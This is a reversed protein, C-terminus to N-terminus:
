FEAAHGQTLLSDTTRAAILLKGVNVKSADPLSHTKIPFCTSICRVSIIGRKRRTVQFVPIILETKIAWLSIVNACEFHLLLVFLETLVTFTQGKGSCCRKGHCNETKAVKAAREEEKKTMGAKLNKREMDYDFSTTLLFETIDNNSYKEPM